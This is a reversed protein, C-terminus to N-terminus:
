YNIITTILYYGFICMFSHAWLWSRLRGDSDAGLCIEFSRARVPPRHCLNCFLGPGHSSHTSSISLLSVSVSAFTIQSSQNLWSCLWKEVLRYWINLTPNLDWSNRSVKCSCISNRIGKAIEVLGWLGLENERNQFSATGADYVYSKWNLTEFGLVM